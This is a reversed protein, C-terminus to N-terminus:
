QQEHYWVIALTEAEVIKSTIFMKSKMKNSYILYENKVARMHTIKAAFFIIFFPLKILVSTTTM